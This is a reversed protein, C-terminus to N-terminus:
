YANRRTVWMSESTMLSIVMLILGGVIAPTWGYIALYGPMIDSVAKLAVAPLFWFGLVWLPILWLLATGFTSVAMVAALAIAITDVLWLMIGFVFSLVLANFFGGRFEIGYILPLVWIFALAM